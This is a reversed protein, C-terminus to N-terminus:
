TGSSMPATPLCFIATNKPHQLAGKSSTNSFIPRALNGTFQTQTSPCSLGVLWVFLLPLVDEGNSRGCRSMSMFKPGEFAYLFFSVTRPEGCRLDIPAWYMRVKKDPPCVTLNVKKNLASRLDVQAGGVDYLKDWGLDYLSLVIDVDSDPTSVATGKAYSGFLYASTISPCGM